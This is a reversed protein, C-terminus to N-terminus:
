GNAKTPKESAVQALRNREDQVLRWWLFVAFGAFLMWELFYFASLLNLQSDHKNLGIIIPEILPTVGSSRLIVFGAYAAIPKPSAVNILQPISVSEFAKVEGWTQAQQATVGTSGGIQRAVEETPEYRGLVTVFTKAMDPSTKVLIECAKRASAAQPTFGHALFLHAGLTDVSDTMVWFGDISGDPRLQRRDSIVFCNNTLLRVTHVIQRDAQDTKFPQGHATLEVLPTVTEIASPDSTVRISRSLQWQGLSAFLAAAALALALAGLWKPKTAVRLFSPRM